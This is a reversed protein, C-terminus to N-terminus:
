AGGKRPAKKQGTCYAAWADSLARRKELIPGRRYAAEVKNEITHALAMQIVENQFDTKEMAWDNFTSRFGHVTIDGPEM